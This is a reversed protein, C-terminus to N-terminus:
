LVTTGERIEEINFRIWRPFCFDVPNRVTNFKTSCLGQSNKLIKSDIQVIRSWIFELFFSCNHFHPSVKFNKTICLFSQPQTYNSGDVDSNDVGDRWWWYSRTRNRFTMWKAWEELYGKCKSIKKL